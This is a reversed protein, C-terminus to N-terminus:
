GQLRQLEARLTTIESDVTALWEAGAETLLAERMRRPTVSAELIAIRGLAVETATPPPRHIAIPESNEGVSIMMGNAQADLLEIHQERTIEVADEPMTKHISSDYFGKTSASFFIKMDNAKM